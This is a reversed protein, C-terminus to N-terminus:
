IEAVACVASLHVREALLRDVEGHPIQRLPVCLALFFFEAYRNVWFHSLHLRQNIKKLVEHNADGLEGLRVPLGLGVDAGAGKDRPDDLYTIHAPHGKLNFM